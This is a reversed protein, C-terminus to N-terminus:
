VVSPRPSRSANGQIPIWLVDERKRVSPHRTVARAVGEWGSVDSSTKVPQPQLATPKHLSWVAQPEWAALRKKKACSVENATLRPAPSVTLCGERVSAKALVCRAESAIRTLCLSVAAEEDSVDGRLSVIWLTKALTILSAHERPRKAVDEYSAITAIM